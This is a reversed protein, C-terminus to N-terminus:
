NSGYGFLLVNPHSIDWYIPGSSRMAKSNLNRTSCQFYRQPNLSRWNMWAWCDSLGHLERTEVGPPHVLLACHLVQHAFIYHSQWPRWSRLSRWIMDLTLQEDLTKLHNRLTMASTQFTYDCLLTRFCPIMGSKLFHGQPALSRSNRLKLSRKLCWFPSGRQQSVAPLFTLM